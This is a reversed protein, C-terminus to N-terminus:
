RSSTKRKHARVVEKLLDGLRLRVEEIRTAFSPDHHIAQNLSDGNLALDMEGVMLSWRKYSAHNRANVSEVPSLAKPEKKPRDKLAKSTTKSLTDRITSVIKQENENLDDFPLELVEYLPRELSRLKHGTIGSDNLIGACVKRWHFVAVRTVDPCHTAIWANFHGHPLEAKIREIFAGLIVIRMRGDNAEAILSQLKDAVAKDNGKPLSPVTAATAPTLSRSM